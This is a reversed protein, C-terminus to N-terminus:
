ITLLVKNLYEQEKQQQHEHEAEFSYMMMYVISFVVCALLIFNLITEKM